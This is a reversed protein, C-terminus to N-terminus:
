CLLYDIFMFPLAVFLLFFYHFTSCVITISLKLKIKSHMGLHIFDKCPTNSVSGGMLQGRPYYHGTLAVKTTSYINHLLPLLKSSNYLIVLVRILFIIQYFTFPGESVKRDTSKSIFTNPGKWEANLYYNSIFKLMYIWALHADLDQPILFYNIGWRALIVYDQQGKQTHLMFSMDSSSAIRHLYKSLLTMYILPLLWHRTKSLPCIHVTTFYHVQSTSVYESDEAHLLYLYM